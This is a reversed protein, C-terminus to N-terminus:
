PDAFSERSRQMDGYRDRVCQRARPAFPCAIILCGANPRVHPRANKFTPQDQDITTSERLEDRM